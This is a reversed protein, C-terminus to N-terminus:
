PKACGRGTLPNRAPPFRTLISRYTRAAVRKEEPGPKDKVISAQLVNMAENTKIRRKWITM